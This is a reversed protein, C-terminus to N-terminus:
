NARNEEDKSPAGVEESKKEAEFFVAWHIGRRHFDEQGKEQNEQDWWIKVSFSNLVVKEVTWDNPVSKFLARHM